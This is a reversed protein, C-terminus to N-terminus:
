QQADHSLCEQFAFPYTFKVLNYVDEHVNQLSLSSVKLCVKKENVNHLHITKSDLCNFCKHIIGRDEFM